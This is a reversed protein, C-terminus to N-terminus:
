SRSGQHILRRLHQTQQDTPLHHHTRFQQQTNLLVLPIQRLQNLLKSM